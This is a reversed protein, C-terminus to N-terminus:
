EGSQYRLLLEETGVAITAQRNTIDLAIVVFDGAEVGWRRFFPSLGWMNQEIVLTGVPQEDEAYLEYSGGTVSRVAAPAGLIGTAEAAPSIRFAAWLRGDNTWGHDQLVQHQVRQPIMADVEAATVPAGRLGFVGPAYRELMPSYTLYVYFSSRNLGREAVVIRELDDRRMVPGYDFLAQVLKRENSGLVDRWDALDPGGCIRDGDRYFDGSDVCLTALVERPPRFGKMRHYRGVGARLEALEISGAVSMIKRVQNLLRNRTGRVWFWGREEDLWAFGELAEITIRLLRPEVEFGNEKLRVEVDDVTTAGWHEVQRRTTTRVASSPAWDGLPALTGDLHKFPIDKDFIEAAATLSAISFSGAILGASSLGAELASPSAPVLEAAKQLARDLVPTWIMDCKDVREKFKRELQRVRERTVGIIQGTAELTLPEAGGLGTRALIATKNSARETLADVIQDLETELTLKRLADVQDTFGRIVAATRKAQSPTYNAEALAEGASRATTAFPDLAVLHSGVRPDGATVSGAWRRKALASAAVRVARSPTASEDLVRSENSHRPEEAELATLLDLLSVAGFNKLSWVTGVTTPRLRGSEVLGGYRLANRTRVSLDLDDVRPRHAFIPVQALEAPIGQNLVQVIETALRRVQETSRGQWVAANLDGLTAGSSLGLSRAVGTGVPHAGLLPTLSRPFLRRGPSPYMYYYVYRIIGERAVM